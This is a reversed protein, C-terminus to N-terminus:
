KRGKRHFEISPMYRNEGNELGGEKLVKELEDISEQLRDLNKTSIEKISKIVNILGKIFKSHMKCYFYSDRFRSVPLYKIFNDIVVDDEKFATEKIYVTYNGHKIGFKNDHANQHIILELIERTTKSLPFDYCYYDASEWQEHYWSHCQFGFWNKMFYAVVDRFAKCVVILNYYENLECFSVIEILLEPPIYIPSYRKIKKIPRVDM